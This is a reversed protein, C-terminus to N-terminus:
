FFVMFQQQNIHRDLFLLSAYIHCIGIKKLQREIRLPYMSTILVVINEKEEECLVTPEKIEYGWIKSYWKRYDNDVIYDIDIKNAEIITELCNLCENGAGFLILRKNKVVNLFNEVTNNSNM